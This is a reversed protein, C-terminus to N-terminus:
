LERRGPLGEAGGPILTLGLVRLHFKEETGQKHHDHRDGDGALAVDVGQAVGEHGRLTRGAERARAAAESREPHVHGRQVGVGGADPPVPIIQRFHGGPEGEGARIGGQRLALPAAAHAFTGRGEGQRADSQDQGTGGARDIHRGEVEPDAEGAHGIEVLM